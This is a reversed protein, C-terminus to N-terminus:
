RLRVVLVSEAEIRAVFRGDTQTVGRAEGLLTEGVQCGEMATKAGAIEMTAPKVGKNVLVLVREGVGAGCGERLTEGRVIAMTDASAAVVQEEGTSLATNGARVALLRKVWDFMAAQEPTRTSAVFASPAPGSFGGPFERRNEPDAGGEMAIEDGSYIEPMGRMTLLLAFALREKAATAGAESLLRPM